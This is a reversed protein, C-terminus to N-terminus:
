MGREGASNYFTADVMVQNAAPGAWNHVEIRYRGATLRATTMTEGTLEGSAGSAIDGSWSGDATRRQLYLDIDAPLTPTAKVIAKANDVGDPVDFHVFQSTVGDVRVGAGSALMTVSSSIPAQAPGPEVVEDESLPVTDPYLTADAVVPVNVSTAGPGTFIRVQVDGAFLPVKDPDSTTVRLVLRHGERLHHGMAFCPPQMDYREGPVVLDRQALGNRLEPNIACQSIRRWDGDPSEDFLNAILHVRPATVSAALELTPQGALVLDETLPATRFTAGATEEPAIFGRSDGVFSVAGSGAPAESALGEDATPHFTVRQSAGPWATTTLVETRDGTRAGEFTGESM